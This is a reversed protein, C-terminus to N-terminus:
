LTQAIKQNSFLHCKPLFHNRVDLYLTMLTLKGVVQDNVDTEVAPNKVPSASLLQEYEFSFTVQVKRNDTGTCTEM